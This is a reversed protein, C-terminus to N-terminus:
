LNSTMEPRGHDQMEQIQDTSGGGLLWLEASAYHTKIYGDSFFDKLTPTDVYNFCMANM